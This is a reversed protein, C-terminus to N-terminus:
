RGGRLQSDILEIIEYATMCYEANTELVRIAAMEVDTVPCDLADIREQLEVPITRSWPSPMVREEMKRLPSTM